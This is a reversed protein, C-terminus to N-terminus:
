DQRVKVKLREWFRPAYVVVDDSTYPKNDPGAYLQILNEYDFTVTAQLRLDDTESYNFSVSQYQHSRVIPQNNSGGMPNDKSLGVVQFNKNFIFSSDTNGFVYLRPIEGPPNGFIKETFPYHDSRVHLNNQATGGQEQGYNFEKQLVRLSVGNYAAPLKFDQHFWALDWYFYLLNVNKNKIAKDSTNAYYIRPELRVENGASFDAIRLPSYYSMNNDILEMMLASPLNWDDQFRITYFKGKFSDPTISTIYAGLGAHRATDMGGAPGEATDQGRYRIDVTVTGKNGKKCAAPLILLALTAAVSLLFIPKNMRTM